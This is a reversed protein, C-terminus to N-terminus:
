DRDELFKIKYFQFYTNLLRNFDIVKCIFQVM